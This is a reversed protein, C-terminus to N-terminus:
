QAPGYGFKARVEALDQEAKRVLIAAAPDVKARRAEDSVSDSHIRTRRTRNAVRKLRDPDVDRKLLRAISRLVPLPREVLDEYRCVLDYRAPDASEYFRRVVSVNQDLYDDDFRRSFVPSAMAYSWDAIPLISRESEPNYNSWTRVHEESRFLNM